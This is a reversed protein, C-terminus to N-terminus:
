VIKKKQQSYTAQKNLADEAAKVIPYAIPSATLAPHTGMQFTVLDLITAKTSIFVSLVNIIEGTTLGGSIEGGILVKTESDFILKTKTEIAGPMCGPHRDMTIANGIILDLGLETAQEENLGVGCLTLDRIVTSFVGIVGKQNMELKKLNSGAIRAEWTAISALKLKTPKNTFFSIKEACDGAAFINEDSTRLYQDIWVSGTQGIRLGAERALKVNPVVGIGMLVMDCSIQKGNSLEVGQVTQEGIIKVVKSNTVINVALESLKKEAQICFDSDFVLQLCHPLMEVITVNLGKKKFEDAFEVGIFGGGIIVVNKVKKLVNLIKNIYDVDKKISFVNNLNAGPIAPIIPLAGTALVLKEYNLSEGSKLQVIKQKRDISIAEGKVLKIDNKSLLADPIIDKDTSCLTGFIYPIACPVCVKEEKRLLTIEANKDSRRATIGTVIGAASGGIILIKSKHM